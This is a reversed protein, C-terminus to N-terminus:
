KGLLARADEGAANNCETRLSPTLGRVMLSMEGRLHEVGRAMFLVSKGATSGTRLLNALAKLRPGMSDNHVGVM